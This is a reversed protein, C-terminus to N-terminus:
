TRALSKKREELEGLEVCKGDNKKKQMIAVTKTNDNNNTKVTTTAM